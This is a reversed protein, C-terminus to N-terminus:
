MSSLIKGRAAARVVAQLTGDRAIEWMKHPEKEVQILKVKNGRCLEYSDDFPILKDDASHVCITSKPSLVPLPPDRGMLKDLKKHAPALLVTPGVWVGSRVLEILVAGGWSFGVVVDPKYEQLERKAIRVSTAFSGNLAAAIISQRFLFCLTVM